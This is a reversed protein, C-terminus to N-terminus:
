KLRMAIYRPLQTIFRTLEADKQELADVETRSLRPLAPLEEGRAELLTTWAIVLGLDAVLMATNIPHVTEGFGTWLIALTSACSVAFYLTVLRWHILLNRRYLPTVRLLHFFLWIGALLLAIMESEYQKMSLFAAQQPYGWRAAIRPITAFALVAAILIGTGAVRLRFAGIGPFHDCILNYLECVVGVHLIAGIVLSARYLRVYNLTPATALFLVADIILDLILYITFVPYRHVLRERFLRFILVAQAVLLVGWLWRNIVVIMQLDAHQM